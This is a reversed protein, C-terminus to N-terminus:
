GKSQLDRPLNPDDICLAAKGKLVEWSPDDGQIRPPFVGPIGEVLSSRKLAKRDALFLVKQVRSEQILSDIIAMAVRTKGTGTAMVILAKRHGKQIHELIRKVNEISKPRDAIDTNVRIPQNISNENQFRLRELDALTYFGKIQRLPYRQRDWLWIEYGNTLFIFVDKGTQHKIDDAYQEAQKKGVVPDRSTRKAEIIAIPAGYGDLLLYDVYKSELDNTLTQSVTKYKHSLFESQKTDVEPVIQTRDSVNWGQEKLLIDIKLKRTQAESLYQSDVM